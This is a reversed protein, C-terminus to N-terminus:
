LPRLLSDALLNKLKVEDFATELAYANLGTETQVFSDFGIEGLESALVDSIYEEFPEIFFNIEFYNM